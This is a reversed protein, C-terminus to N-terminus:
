AGPRPSGSPSRRGPLAPGRSYSTFKTESKIFDQPLLDFEPNFKNLLRGEEERSVPLNGVAAGFYVDPLIGRITYTWQTGNDNIRRVYVGLRRGHADLGSFAQEVLYRMNVYPMKYFHDADKYLHELSDLRTATRMAERKAARVIKHISDAKDHIDKKAPIEFLERDLTEIARMIDSKRERYKAMMKCAEDETFTGNAIASILKEIGMEVKALEKRRDALNSEIKPVETAKPFADEVAQEIAKKDGFMGFLSMVVANEIKEAPMWISKDCTRVRDRAHRYYRRDGRNTQGFM